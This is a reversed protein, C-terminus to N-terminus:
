RDPLLVIPAADDEWVSAWRAAALRRPPKQRGRFGDTSSEDDLRLRALHVRDEIRGDDEYLVSVTAPHMQGVVRGRRPERRKASAAVIVADGNRFLPRRRKKGNNDLVDDDKDEPAAFFTRAKSPYTTTDQPALSRDNRVYLHCPVGRHDVHDDHRRELPLRLYPRDLRFAKKGTPDDDDDVTGPFDNFLRRLTPDDLLGGNFAIAALVARTKAHAFVRALDPLRHSPVPAALLILDATALAGSPAHFFDGRRLELVRGTATTLRVIATGHHTLDCRPWSSRPSNAAKVFTRWAAVARRYRSSCLEVARLRQIGRCLLFFALSSRGDGAGFIVVEPAGDLRRLLAIQADPCQTARASVESRAAAGEDIDQPELTLPERGYAVAVARRASEEDLEDDCEVVTTEKVNDCDTQTGVATSSINRTTQTGRHEMMKTSVPGAQQLLQQQYGQVLKLAQVLKSRLEVTEQVLEANQTAYGEGQCKDASHRALVAALVARTSAVKAEYVARDVAWSRAASEQVKQSELLQQVLRAVRKKSAGSLEAISM